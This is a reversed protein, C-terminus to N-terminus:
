NGESSRVWAQVPHQCSFGKEGIYQFICEEEETEWDLCSSGRIQTQWGLPCCSESIQYFEEWGQCRLRTIWLPTPSKRNVCQLLLPLKSSRKWPVRCIAYSGVHFLGQRNNGCGAESSFNTQFLLQELLLQWMRGTFIHVFLVLNATEYSLETQLYKRTSVLVSVSLQLQIPKTSTIRSYGKSLSCGQSSISCGLGLVTPQDCWCCGPAKQGVGPPLWEVSVTRRM